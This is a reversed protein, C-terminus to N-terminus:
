ATKEKRHELSKQCEERFWYQGVERGRIIIAHPADQDLRNYADVIQRKDWNTWRRLREKNSFLAGYHEYIRKCFDLTEELNEPDPQRLRLERQLALEGSRINREIARKRDEFCAEISEFDHAPGIYIYSQGDATGIAVIDEDTYRKELFKKLKMRTM